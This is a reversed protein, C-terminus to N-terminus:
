IKRDLLLGVLSRMTAEAKIADEPPVTKIVEGTTADVVQVRVEHGSAVQFRLNTKLYRSTLNLADVIAELSMAEPAGQRAVPALPPVEAVAPVPAPEPRGAPHVPDVPQSRGGVKDVLM